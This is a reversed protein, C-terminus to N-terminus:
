PENAYFIFENISLGQISKQFPPQNEQESYSLNKITGGHFQMEKEKRQHRIQVQFFNSYNIVACITVKLMVNLMFQSNGSSFIKDQWHRFRCTLGVCIFNESLSQYSQGPILNMKRCGRIYLSITLQQFLRNYRAMIPQNIDDQSCKADNPVLWKNPVKLM